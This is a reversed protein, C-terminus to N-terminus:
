IKTKIPVSNISRNFSATMYQKHFRDEEPLDLDAITETTDTEQPDLVIGKEITEEANRVLDPDLGETINTGAALDREQIEEKEAEPDEM